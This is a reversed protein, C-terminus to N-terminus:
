ILTNKLDLPSVGSELLSYIEGFLKIQQNILNDCFNKNSFGFEGKSDILYIYCVQCLRQIPCNICKKGLFNNYKNIISTLNTYNIGDFVDGYPIKSNIKECMHLLGNYDVSVKTSPICAGSFPQIIPKMDKIEMNLCRNIINFYPLAFLKKSFLDIKKNNYLKYMFDEKLKKIQSNFKNNQEDTYQDYWNTNSSEVKSLIALKNKLLNNNEFFDKLKFMDTGNDFTAAIKVKKNFYEPYKNAIININKMICNFTGINNKYVRLRDNESKNGNLSIVLFIDKKVFFDIKEEDLLIGNTTITYNIRGNYINEAYEISDKIVSFNLLPEGGFFGISPTFFLNKRRSECAKKLYNSIAKKAINIKMYNNTHTRSNNYIGSFICYKCRLNCDETVILTLQLTDMNILYNKIEKEGINTEKYPTNGYLIKISDNNTEHHVKGTIDDYFYQNKNTKFYFGRKAM